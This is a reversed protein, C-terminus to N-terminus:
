HSPHCPRLRWRRHWGLRSIARLRLPCRRMDISACGKSTLMILMSIGISVPQIHNDWAKMIEIHLDPLFPLSVPAPLNHGSLFREDLRSRAMGGKRHRWQLDLRATPYVGYGGAARWVRPLCALFAWFYGRRRWWGVGAWSGATGAPDSSTLSLVDEELLKSEDAAWSRLIIIGREFEDSLEM